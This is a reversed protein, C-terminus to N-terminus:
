VVSIMDGDVYNELTWDYQGKPSKERGSYGHPELWKTPRTVTVTIDSLNQVM